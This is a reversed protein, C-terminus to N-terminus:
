LALADGLRNSADWLTPENEHIYVETTQPSRHRAFQQAEYLSAGNQILLNIATYRYSHATLRPSDLVYDKLTQKCIRSISRSSMRQGYDRRSVSAFLPDSEKLSVSDVQERAKLYDNVAALANPHVPLPDGKDDRAKGWIEIMTGKPTNRLDGVDARTVEVVRLGVHLVLSVIARDRKEALTQNPMAALITKAQEATLADKKHGSSVKPVRIGKTIDLEPRAAEESIAKFLWRVATLYSAATSPKYNALLYDKYAKVDARTPNNIGQSETWNFFYRVGKRYADITKPDRDLADLLAEVYAGPDAETPALMNSPTAELILENMTPRVAKTTEITSM